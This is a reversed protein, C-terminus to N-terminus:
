RVIELATKRAVIFSESKIKKRDVVMTATVQQSGGNLRPDNVFIEMSM